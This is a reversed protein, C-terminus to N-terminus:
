AAAAVRRRVIQAAKDDSCLGMFEAAVDLYLRVRELNEGEEGVRLKELLDEIYSDLRSVLSEATKNWLAGFGFRDACNRVEHMFTLLTRAREVLQPDPDATLKPHGRTAKRFGSSQLPLAQAVEAEVAKLRGEVAQALTRKQRILCSGWPGDPALDLCDEFEHLEQSAARVQRGAAGAADTGSQATLTSVEQLRADIDELLREGFTALESTAAYRDTPRQMVACVLRLVSWPEELHAYLIELLRPGADEAIATADKFALRAAAAREETIRGLWEPLRELAARAVPALDLCAAFAEPAEPSVRELAGGAAAYGPNRQTRLGGAARLCLQDIAGYSPALSPDSPHAAAVAAQVEPAAEQKLGKWLQNLAAAPFRLGGAGQRGPRCLPAVAAFVLHRNHRDTAEAAVMAQIQLMSPNRELGASLTAQLARIASDPAAEIMARVGGLQRENLNGM